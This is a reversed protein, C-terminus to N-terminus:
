NFGAREESRWTGACETQQRTHAKAVAFVPADPDLQVTRTPNGNRQHPRRRRGRTKLRFLKRRVQQAHVQVGGRYTSPNVAALLPPDADFGFFPPSLPPKRLCNTMISSTSPMPPESLPPIWSSMLRILFVLTGIMAMHLSRCCWFILYPLRGRRAEHSERRRTIISQREAPRSTQQDAALMSAQQVAEKAHKEVVVTSRQTAAREM